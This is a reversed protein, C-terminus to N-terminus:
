ILNWMWGNKYIPQDNDDIAIPKNEHTRQRDSNIEYGDVLLSNIYDQTTTYMHTERQDSDISVQGENQKQEIYKFVHTYFGEIYVRVWM